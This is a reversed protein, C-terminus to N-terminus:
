FRGIFDPEFRALEEPTTINSVLRGILPHQSAQFDDSSKLLVEHLKEGTRLGTFLIEIEKGSIDIMRQVIDLIRIPKGMDLIFVSEGSTQTAAQMVLQCAEPITMFYRTADPHTVTVPGGNEILFAVTPVLSGRSGLVNGFRVSSYNGEGQSSAWATLEEALLKSYGLVSSPDAAKDTSINIFDGVGSARSAQLVNLTGLVNTKWAELPFRQLMPLHKLAAAHFVVDPKHRAWIASIERTDRIDALVLNPTDLLGSNQTVLQAQQLGTEDRDLMILDSPQFGAVQKALELGISGGAGTILVKRNRIITSIQPGEIRIARRGVLDEIGLERLTLAPGTAALIEAFSPLVYVKAGAITALGRVQELLDASARPVAVIIKKAQTKHVVEPLQELKGFMKVGDIWRGAKSPDDDLLAVPHFLSAPDGLLQPILQEALEGAGYVITFNSAPARQVRLQLVRRVGRASVAFVLFLPVAILITSRPIEWRAGFSFVLLGAPLASFATATSLVRLEDFSGTKYRARYLGSARAFWFSVVGMVLGLALFEPTTIKVLSFDFRFFAAVFVASFWAFSDFLAQGGVKQRLWFFLKL